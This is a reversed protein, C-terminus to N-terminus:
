VLVPLSDGEEPSTMVLVLLKSSRMAVKEESPFIGSDRLGSIFRLGLGGGGGRFLDGRFCEDETLTSVCGFFLGISGLRRFDDACPVVLLEGLWGRARLVEGGLARGSATVRLSLTGCWWGRSCVTEEGLM